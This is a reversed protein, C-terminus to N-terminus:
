VRFRLGSVLGLATFGWHGSREVRLGLGSSFEMAAKWVWKVFLWPLGAVGKCAQESGPLMYPPIKPHSPEFPIDKDKEQCSKFRNPKSDVIRTVTLALM